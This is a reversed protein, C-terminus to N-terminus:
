MKAPNPSVAVATSSVFGDGSVNEQCTSSPPPQGGSCGYSESVNKPTVFRQPELSRRTPFGDSVRRLSDELAFQTSVRMAAFPLTENHARILLQSRKPFEFGFDGM